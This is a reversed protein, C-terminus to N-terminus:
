HEEGRGLTEKIAFCDGCGFWEHPCLSRVLKRGNESLPLIWGLDPMGVNLEAAAIRVLRGAFGRQRYAKAVWVRAITVRDGIMAADAAMKVAGDERWCFRWFHDALGSMVMCVVRTGHAALFLHENAQGITGDYGAPYSPTTRRAVNAIYALERRVNEPTDRNLVVVCLNELMSLRPLSEVAALIPGNLYEDHLRAHILEDEENGTVYSLGCECNM